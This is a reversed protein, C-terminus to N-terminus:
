FNPSETTQNNDTNKIQETRLSQKSSENSSDSLKRIQISAMTAYRDSPFKEIIEQFKRKADESRNLNVLAMAMQYQPAVENVCTGKGSEKFADYAQKFKYEEAYLLGLKYHALCYDNREKISKSLYDFAERRDGEKLNLLAMNYYNRFQNKFTLDKEVENFLDRAEKLKNKEMYITALNLKADSNKEDISIAEKLEYIALELQNRFYYAMALNTRIKANKPDYKKAELLNSLAQIYDKAVLDNTGKEYYVTARKEEPTPEKLSNSSCSTVLVFLIVALLSQPLPTAKFMM